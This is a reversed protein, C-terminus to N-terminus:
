GFFHERFSVCKFGTLHLFHGFWGAFLRLLQSLAQGSVRDLLELLFRLVSESLLAWTKLPLFRLGLATVLLLSAPCASCVCGSQRRPGADPRATGLSFGRSSQAQGDLFEQEAKTKNKLWGM